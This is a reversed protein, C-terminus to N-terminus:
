RTDGTQRERVQRMVSKLAVLPHNGEGEIRVTTTGAPFFASVYWVSKDPLAEVRYNRMGAQRLAALSATWQDSGPAGPEQPRPAPETPAVHHNEAPTNQTDAHSTPDAFQPVRAPGNPTLGPNLRRGQPELEPLQRQFDDLERRSPAHTDPASAGFPDADWQPTSKPPGKLEPPHGPFDSGFPVDDTSDQYDSTEDFVVPADSSGDISPIELDQTGRIAFYPVAVLPVLMCIATMTGSSESKM